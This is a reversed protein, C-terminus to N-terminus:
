TALRFKLMATPTHLVDSWNMRWQELGEWILLCRTTSLKCNKTLGGGGGGGETVENEVLKRRELVDVM